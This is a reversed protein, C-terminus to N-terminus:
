FSIHIILIVRAIMLPRRRIIMMSYDNMGIDFTTMIVIISLIECIIM